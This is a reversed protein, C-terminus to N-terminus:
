DVHCRPLCGSLTLLSSARPYNFCTSWASGLAVTDCMTRQLIHCVCARTVCACMSFCAARVNRPPMPSRRQKECGQAPHFARLLQFYFPDWFSAFWTITVGMLIPLLITDTRGTLHDNSPTIPSIYVPVAPPIYMLVSLTYAAPVGTNMLVNISLACITSVGNFAFRITSGHFSM